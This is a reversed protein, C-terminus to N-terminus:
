RIIAVWGTIRAAGNGPDIIFYYTGIPLPNGNYTGDWANAYGQANYVLQGYRNFVKVTLGPYKALSTIEWKDHIGDGNPSFVNPIGVPDLVYVKINGSSICGNKGTVTLMYTTDTFPKCVPNLLYPNNLYTAPSWVFSLSDGYVTPSLIISDGLLVYQDYGTNIEPYPDITILKVDSNVSICGFSDMVAHSAWYTTANAYVYSLSYNTSFNTITDITGDGLYWISKAIPQPSNDIFEIPNNLCVEGSSPVTIFSAIPQQHIISSMMKITTDATCGDATVSLNINYSSQQIPVVFQHSPNTVTSNAVDNPDNFNWVYNVIQAGIPLKSTNIFQGVGGPLCINTPLIFNATPYAKVTFPMFTSDICGNADTVIYKITDTGVQNGTILGGNITTIQPNTSSWIGISPSANNVFLSKGLCVTNVGAIPPIVPLGNVTFPLIVQNTCGIANNVTYVINISGAKVGTILGTTNITAIAPNASSWIGGPTADTLSTSNGICVANVGAISAISPTVVTIKKSLSDTCGNGNTVIYWVTTQGGTIGTLSGTNDISAVTPNTSVWSGGTTADSLLITKSACVSDAGAIASIVPLANVTVVTFVSDTCGNFVIYRITDKGTFNGTLVGGGNFANLTTISPNTNVWIGGLTSENLTTSKGFCIINNGTIPAIVPLSNVTVSIYVSDSCGNLNTVIYKVTDIGSIIGTLIGTNNLSAISPYENIWIGGPTSESLSTTKGVCVANNGSIASVVPIANVSISFYVSDTCGNSNTVIYRITDSGASLGNVIGSNVTAINNNTSYWVGGTTTTNLTITKGTCVNNNGNIASIVPLANVTISYIASDSCGGPIVIKYRITDVGASIGKVVGNLVTAITSLDSTWIGGAVTETLTINKGACVSNPGTIPAAVPQAKVAFSIFVSDTCGNTNTVIYRITDMGPAVATVVGNADITAISTNTSLWVGGLTTDSLTTTKGACLISDGTITGIVPLANVMIPYKASDGCGGPIIIKYWITDSGGSIGTVLGTQDIIASSLDSSWVGGTATETLTIKKGVCLVNSGTIPVAVVQTKVTFIIFVSDKCGNSNTVIYRITDVGATVGTLLGTNADISAITTNTSVWEGGLTTDYLNVTKGVCVTSDKTIVGIVPLANVTIAYSTSDPCGSASNIVYRISDIGAKIGTVIGTTNITAITTDISKWNGNPTIDSLSITKWACVNKSGTISAVPISPNVVVQTLASSCNSNGKSQVYYTTSTNINSLSISDGTGVLKTGAPDSYWNYTLTTQPNTVGLTFPQGHCDIIPSKAIPPPPSISSNYRTDYYEWSM